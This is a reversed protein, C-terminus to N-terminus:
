TLIIANVPHENDYSQLVNQKCSDMWPSGERYCFFFIKIIISFFLACSYRVLNEEKFHKVMGSIGSGFCPVKLFFPYLFLFPLGIITFEAVRFPPLFIFFAGNIQSLVWRLYSFNIVSFFFLIFIFVVFVNSSFVFFFYSSSSTM